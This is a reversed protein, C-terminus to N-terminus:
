DYIVARLSRSAASATVTINLVNKLLELWSILRGDMLSAASPRATLSSVTQALLERTSSTSNVPSPRTAELTIITALIGSTLGLSSSIKGLIASNLTLSATFLGLETVALDTWSSLLLNDALVAYSVYRNMDDLSFEDRWAKVLDDYAQMSSKVARLRDSLTITSDPQVANVLGRNFALLLQTLNAMEEAHAALSSIILLILFKM